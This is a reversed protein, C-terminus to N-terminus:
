EDKIHHEKYFIDKMSPLVAKFFCLKEEDPLANFRDRLCLARGWTLLNLIRLRIENSLAKFIKATREMNIMIDAHVSIDIVAM